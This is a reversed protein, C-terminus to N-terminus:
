TIQLMRFTDKRVPTAGKGVETISISPQVWTRKLAEFGPRVFNGGLKSCHGTQPFDVTVMEPHFIKDAWFQFPVFAIIRSLRSSIWFTAWKQEAKAGPNQLNRLWAPGTHGNDWGLRQTIKDVSMRLCLFTTQGGCRDMMKLDSFGMLFFFALFM